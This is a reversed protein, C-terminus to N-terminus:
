RTGERRTRTRLLRAIRVDLSLRADVSGCLELHRLVAEVNLQEVAAGNDALATWRVLRAATRYDRRLMARAVGRGLDAARTRAQDVLPGCVGPLACSAVQAMHQAWPRWHEEPRLFADVDVGDDVAVGDGSVAGEVRHLLSTTVRDLSTTEATGGADLPYHALATAIVERDAPDIRRSGFLAPALVDPGLVRVAALATRRDPAGRVYDALAAGSDPTELCRHLRGALDDAARAYDERLATDQHPM